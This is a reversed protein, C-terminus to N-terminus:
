SLAEVALQRTDFELLSVSDGDAVDPQLGTAPVTTLSGVLGLGVGHVATKGFSSRGVLSARDHARLCSAIVEAASATQHDMLVTVDRDWVPDVDTHLRAEQGGVAVRAVESGRPLFAGAVGVAAALAGGANARLDLALQTVGDGRLDDVTRRLQQPAARSVRRVIVRASRVGDRVVSVASPRKALQVGVLERPAHWGSRSVRLAVRAGPKVVCIDAVVELRRGDQSLLKDGSQLGIRFALGDRRVHVIDLGDSSPLATLGLSTDQLDYLDVLASEGLDCYLVNVISPVLTAGLPNNYTNGHSPCLLNKSPLFSTLIMPNGMTTGGPKMMGAPHVVGANDGNTLMPMSAMNQAPMLSILVNPCTPIAMANMGINPYPIPVPAPVMPTLCVDPFGMNMGMGHNSAPMM